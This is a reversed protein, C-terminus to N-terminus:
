GDEVGGYTGPAYPWPPLPVIKGALAHPSDGCFDIYSVNPDLGAQRHALEPATKVFYHCLTKRQGPPLREGEDDFETFCLVSPAFSPRMFDNNFTWIPPGGLITIGHPEECGPCWHMLRVHAGGNGVARRLFPGTSSM